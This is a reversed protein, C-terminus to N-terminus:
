ETLVRIEAMRQRIKRYYPHLKAQATTYGKGTGDVAVAGRGTNYCVVARPITRFRHMCRDLIAAGIRLNYANDNLLRHATADPAIEQATALKIQACGLEGHAGVKHLCLSSEQFVIAQFTEALGYPEAARGAAELASLQGVSLAATLALTIM